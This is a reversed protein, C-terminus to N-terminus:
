IDGGKTQSAPMILMRVGIMLGDKVATGNGGTFRGILYPEYHKGFKPFKAGTGYIKPNWLIHGANSVNMEIAIAEGDENVKKGIKFGANDQMLIICNNLGAQGSFYDNGFISMMTIDKGLQGAKLLARRKSWGKGNELVYLKKPKQKTIKKYWNAWIQDNQDKPIVEKGNSTLTWKGGKKKCETVNTYVKGTKAVERKLAETFDSMMKKIGPMSEMVKSFKKNFFSSVSGYQQFSAKLEVGSPDYMAGHKYSIFFTPKNDIGFGLDAKPVGKIKAGGNIKVGTDKGGIILPLPKANKGLNEKVWTDLNDIQMAEAGLGAAIRPKQEVGLQLLALLTNIRSLHRDSNQKVTKSLQCIREGYQSRIKTVSGATTMILSGEKSLVSKIDSLSYMKKNPNYTNGSGAALEGTPLSSLKDVSDQTIDDGGLKQVVSLDYTGIAENILNKSTLIFIGQNQLSETLLSKLRIM